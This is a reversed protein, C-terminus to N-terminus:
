QAAREGSRRRAKADSEARLSTFILLAAGTTILCDPLNFTPFWGTHLYDTVLGDQLRDVLNAAAGALIATIAWRRLPPQSWGSQWSYGLILLTIVGTILTILWPPLTDGLSFAVGANHVLRLQVPGADVPDTLWREAGTKALLAFAALAAATAVMTARRATPGSM